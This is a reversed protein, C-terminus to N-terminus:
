VKMGGFFGLAGFLLPILIAALIGLGVGVIVPLLVALVARGTSIGHGGKVGFITLILTYIGGVSSGIFPIIGFLYGSFAYCVVRFTMQFGKKNGGVIM